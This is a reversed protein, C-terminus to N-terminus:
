VYTSAACNPAYRRASGSPLCSISLESGSQQSSAVTLLVGGDEGYHSEGNVLRGCLFLVWETSAVQMGVGAATIVAGVLLSHKRGIWEILQGSILIGIIDGGSAAASWGSLYNAPIIYGTDSAAFERGYEQQFSPLTAANSSVGWDYGLVHVRDAIWGTSIIHFM